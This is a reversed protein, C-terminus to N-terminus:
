MLTGSAFSQVVINDRIATGDALGYISSNASFIHACRYDLCRFVATFCRTPYRKCDVTVSCPNAIDAAM